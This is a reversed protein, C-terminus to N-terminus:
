SLRARARRPSVDSDLMWAPANRSARKSATKPPSMRLSRSKMRPAFVLKQFLEVLKAYRSGYYRFVHTTLTFEVIGLPQLRHQLVVLHVLSSIHGLLELICHLM